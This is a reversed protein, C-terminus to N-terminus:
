ITTERKGSMHLHAEGLCGVCRRLVVSELRSVLIDIADMILPVNSSATERM